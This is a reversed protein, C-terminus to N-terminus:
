RVNSWHENGMGRMKGYVKAFRRTGKPYIDWSPPFGGCSMWNYLDVMARRATADVRKADDILRLTANPDM